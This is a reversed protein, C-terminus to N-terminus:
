PSGILRRELAPPSGILVRRFAIVSFRPLAGFATRRRLEEAALRCLCTASSVRSRSSANLLCVAM